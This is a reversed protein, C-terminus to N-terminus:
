YIREVVLEYDVESAAGTNQNDQAVTATWEGLNALDGAPVTLTEEGAGDDEDAEYVNGEPDTVNLDLDPNVEPQVPVEGGEGSSANYTLQLDLQVPRAGLRAEEVPVAHENTDPETTSPGVTDEFIQRDSVHVIRRDTAENGLDDAVTLNVSWAGPSEFGQQVQTGSADPEGDGDVDWNYATIEQDPDATSASADLTVQDGVFVNNGVEGPQAAPDGGLLVQPRATPPDVVTVELTATAEGDAAQATLEVTYDGRQQYVHEVTPQSTTEETGDGFSWVYSEVEGQTGSADLTIPQGTTAVYRGEGDTFADAVLDASVDADSSAPLLIYAGAALGALLLIAVLAVALVGGRDDDEDDEDPETDGSGQFRALLASARTEEDGAPAATETRPLDVDAPSPPRADKGDPDPGALAPDSLESGQEDSGVGPVFGALGGGEDPEDTTAEADEEDLGDEPAPESADEDLAEPEEEDDESRWFALGSGEEEDAHSEEDPSPEPGAEDDGDEDPEDEDDEAQQEAEAKEERLSRLRDFLRDLRSPETEIDAEDDLAEEPARAGVDETDPDPAEPEAGAEQELEQIQEEVRALEKEIEEIDADEDSAL